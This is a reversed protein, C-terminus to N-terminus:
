DTQALARLSHIDGFTGPPEDGGKNGKMLVSFHARRVGCAGGIVQSVRNIGHVSRQPIWKLQCKTLM